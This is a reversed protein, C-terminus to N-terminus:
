KREDHKYQRIRAGYTDTKRHCPICLTRGNTPDLRLEPFLAYPKIHDVQLNGGLVGCIQCTYKDREMVDRRWQQYETLHMAQTRESTIGGKWMPHKDGRLNLRPVGTKGLSINRRTESSLPVGRRSLGLQRVREREAESITQSKKKASLAAAYKAVRTDSKKTLGKNWPTSM